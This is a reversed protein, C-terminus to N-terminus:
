WQDVDNSNYQMLMPRHNVKEKTLKLIIIRWENKYFSIDVGKEELKKLALKMNSCLCFQEVLEEKGEEDRTKFDNAFVIAVVEVEKLDPDEGMKFVLSGSDGQESFNGDRGKVLVTGPLEDMNPVSHSGEVLGTTWGSKAGKKHVFTGIADEVQGQYVIATKKDGKEDRLCKECDAAIEASVRIVAIDLLYEELDGTGIKEINEGLKIFKEMVKVYLPRSENGLYLHGNTLAVMQGDATKGFGGVTGYGEGKSNLFLRDGQEVQRNWSIHVVPLFSTPWPFSNLKILEKIHSEAAKQRPKPKDANIFVRFTDIWYGYGIM